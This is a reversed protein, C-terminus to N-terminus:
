PQRSWAMRRILGDRDIFHHKLAGLVHLGVVAALMWALRGHWPKLFEALAADKPVFDPLPLVGFLVIPFGAASSYAWGMLPVTFFLIYLLLHAVHATRQQWLPMPVDEPPRHALRWLLRLASLALIVVGAWKHWNYLKLRHPSFPLSTMYVGVCFSGAIALALLWHLVVATRTYRLPTATNM